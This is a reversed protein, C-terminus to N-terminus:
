QHEHAGEKSTNVPGEGPVGAVRCPRRVEGDGATNWRRGDLVNGGLGSGLDRPDHETLGEGGSLEGGALVHKLRDALRRRPRAPACRCIPIKNWPGWRL